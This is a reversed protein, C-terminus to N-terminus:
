ELCSYNLIKEKLHVFYRSYKRPHHHITELFIYMQVSIYGVQSFGLPLYLKSMQFYWTEYALM